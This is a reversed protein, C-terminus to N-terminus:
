GDLIDKGFYWTHTIRRYVKKKKIKWGLTQEFPKENRIRANWFSMFLLIEYNIFKMVIIFMIFSDIEKGNMDLLVSSLM